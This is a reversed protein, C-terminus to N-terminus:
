RVGHLTPEGPMFLIPNGIRDKFLMSGSPATLNLTGDKLHYKVQGGQSILYGGSKGFPVQLGSPQAVAASKFYVDRHRAVTYRSKSDPKVHCTACLDCTQELRNCLYGYGVDPQDDEITIDSVLKVKGDDGVAYGRLRMDALHTLGVLVPLLCVTIILSVKRSSM